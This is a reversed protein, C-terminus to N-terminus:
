RPAPLLQRIEETVLVPDVHHLYHETTDVKIVKGNTSLAAWEDQGALWASSLGRAVDASGPYAPDGRTLVVTPLAGLDPASAALERFARVADLREPNADPSSMAACTATWMAAAESGDDPVACVTQPWTVPSTDLLALGVVEDAHRSAFAVAAAGGFSHGVVVYPGPEGAAEVLSHLDEVQTTFTQTSPPPDSTGTGFRAYACVRADQVLKTEVDGWADGADGWGGILLVTTDGSGACRLHLRGKGIDVLTDVPATPRLGDADTSRQPAATAARADPSSTEGCAASALVAGVALVLILINLPSHFLSPMQM